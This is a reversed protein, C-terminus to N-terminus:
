GEGRRWPRELRVGGGCLYAAAVSCHAYGGRRGSLFGVAVWLKNDVRLRQACLPRSLPSRPQFVLFVCPPRPLEHAHLLAAEARSSPTTRTPISTCVCRTHSCSRTYVPRLSNRRASSNSSPRRAYSSRAEQSAHPGARSRPLRAALSPSSSPPPRFPPSARSGHTCIWRLSRQRPVCAREAYIAACCSIDSQSHFDHALTHRNRISALHVTGETRM